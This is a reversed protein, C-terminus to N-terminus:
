VELYVLEGGVAVGASLNLNLLAGVATEFWGVPSYSVSIGTNAVFYKLGTLDTGSAGSQWKANVSGNAFLNYCVVRIKKGGVAAVVTNDGNSSAAVKAFKPTLATTGSYITSTENSASVQGILATGAGITATTVSTADTVVHLNTGTPQVVTVNGTVVTTSGSDAIVHGIVNSGAPLANTIATVATVTAITSNSAVAVRQTGTGAAGVGVDVTAGNVQKLNEDQTGTPTNTVPLPSTVPTGGVSAINVDTGSGGGGDVHLTNQGSVDQRKM